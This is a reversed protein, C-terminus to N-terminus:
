KSAGESALLQEWEDLRAQLADAQEQLDRMLGELRTVRQELTMNSTDAM